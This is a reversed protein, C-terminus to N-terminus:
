LQKAARPFSFSFLAGRGRKMRRKFFFGVIQASLAGDSHLPLCGADRLFTLFAARSCSRQLLPSFSSSPNDIYILVFIHIDSDGKPNDNQVDWKIKYEWRATFPLNGGAAAALAKCSTAEPSFQTYLMLVKKVHGWLWLILRKLPDIYLKQEITKRSNVIQGSSSNHAGGMWNIIGLSSPDWNVIHNAVNKYYAKQM